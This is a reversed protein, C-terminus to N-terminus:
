STGKEGDRAGSKRLTRKVQAEDISELAQHLLVGAVQGATPRVEEDAIRQALDQLRSWDDNDLPIKQRRTAGTLSRRGGTSTLRRALEQRLAFLALPGGQKSHATSTVDAGLAEAIVAPNIRLVPRSTSRVRPLAKGTRKIRQSM